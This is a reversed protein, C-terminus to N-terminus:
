GRDRGDDIGEDSFEQAQDVLEDVTDNDLEIGEERADNADNADSDSIEDELNAIDETSFENIEEAGGNDSAEAALIEEPTQSMSHITDGAEDSAAAAAVAEEGALLAPEVPAPVPREEGEEYQGFYHRVAVAIKEVTKDGIGPVEGLEEATMDALSEVTTIGAAILKEMVSEGLETVQEIPTSPGGTMAQMQQEVEQRKEEESKIDIKWQLLKAALRVNQGKKGIALSLQTDDVIVELQKEALDTISVRSVKAPQLAKEAFTTIEESYEIIDIKEGRLERIISQVRMGKMGVCAGVPDVDKDRSVVAIKTREGAERAIARISVTGDYIEPVESQFLSQVLAPAARSVIVQPGKAARDVRLLVVRVREAVSFQELRSQERKPMRAEAKGLDFIVDMPELRKVTATLIEGARHAYENFVTDREAERVKQFIVQKAMQAAIRGLPTTDKYFRLEGGVEVEPALERAQELALQNDADEVLEPTEVVTKFVYARIEGTERDMEGRMNEVTKYYKRTALAIADEVAGVVIEPDIGKERSLLEISQYLPSAM